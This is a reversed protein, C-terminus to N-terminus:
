MNSEEELFKNIQDPTQIRIEADFETKEVELSSSVLAIKANRLSKPMMPHVIEKDVIIGEIINTDILSKGEKKIIQIHDLDILTK